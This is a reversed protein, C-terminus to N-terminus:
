KRLFTFYRYIMNGCATCTGDSGLNMTITDYGSRSTVLTGCVKCHTDQRQNVHMNGTYVYNLKESAIDWLKLLSKEPTSSTDRRYAPFYASLHFPVDQGLEGAMWESQLRMMKEDDNMGPIVLTTVELHKGSDAIMRLTQKVPELEAGTIKKYFTEDFAKLDINFADIFGIIEKLPESNVYGNSIMATRLDKERAKEAADRMFEFSIIPENYTFALGVNNEAELCESIIGDITMGPRLSAPVNQSIHYNQCFDCRMNCGYSGVSLIRSGPFFHYFPKKEVPDLAFGSIIGYTTLEIRDGTNKRVGCIGTKGASLRCYHPCLLCELKDNYRGTLSIM